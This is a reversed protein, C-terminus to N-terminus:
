TFDQRYDGRAPRTPTEHFPPQNLHATSALLSPVKSPPSWPSTMTSAARLGPWSRTSTAPSPTCSRSSLGPCPSAKTNKPPPAAGKLIEAGRVSSTLKPRLSGRTPEDIEVQVAPNVDAGRRCRRSPRAAFAPVARSERGPGDRRGSARAQAGPRAPGPTCSASMSPVTQRIEHTNQRGLAANEHGRAGAQANELVRGGHGANESVSPRRHKQSSALRKAKSCTPSARRRGRRGLRPMRCHPRARDTLSTSASWRAELPRISSACCRSRPGTPPSPPVKPSSAARSRSHPRTASNRPACPRAPQRPTSPPWAIASSGEFFGARSDFIGLRRWREITGFFMPPSCRHTAAMKGGLFLKSATATRISSRPCNWPSFIGPAAWVPTQQSARFLYEAGDVTRAVM